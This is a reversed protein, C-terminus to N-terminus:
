RVGELEALLELAERENLERASKAGREGLKRMWVDRVAEPDSVKVGSRILWMERAKGIRAATGETIQGSEPSTDPKSDAVEAVAGESLEGEPSKTVGTAYDMVEEAIGLGCLVDPFVDRIAWSRARMLLQRGPYEQWPGAKGWLKAKKAQDISFEQRKKQEGKRVFECYAFTSEDEIDGSLGEDHYDMVGSFKVLALAADGWITARGNLVMINNTAQIPTLGVELGAIIRIAIHEPKTISKSQIGGLYMVRALSMIADTPPFSIRRRKPKLVSTV